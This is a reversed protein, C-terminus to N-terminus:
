SCVKSEHTSRLGRKKMSKHIIKALRLIHTESRGTVIVSDERMNSVEGLVTIIDEGGNAELCATIEEVTLVEGPIIRILRSSRDVLGSEWTWSAERKRRNRTYDEVALEDNQSLWVAADLAEDVKINDDYDGDDDEDEEGRQQRMEAEANEARARDPPVWEWEDEGQEKELAPTSTTSGSSSLPSASVIKQSSLDSKKIEGENQVGVKDDSPGNANASM